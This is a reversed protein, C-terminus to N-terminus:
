KKSIVTNVSTTLKQFAADIKGTTQRDTPLGEGRWLTNLMSQSSLDPVFAEPHSPFISLWQKRDLFSQDRNAIWGVQIDRQKANKQLEMCAVQRRPSWKVPYCDGVMWIRDVSNVIWETLAQEEWLSSVDLLVFPVGLRRLWNAFDGDPKNPSCEDPNVPYYAAKGIRWAPVAAQKGSASAYVTGKPMKRAGDLWAYIEAEGGPCEVLAHAIGYRSLSSSWALSTFTAGAGPYASALAAVFVGDKNEPFNNLM